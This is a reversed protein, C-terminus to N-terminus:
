SLRAKLNELVENAPRGQVMGQEFERDRREAEELWLRENEEASLNELSSLLKTVLRARSKADLKMVEKEIESIHM